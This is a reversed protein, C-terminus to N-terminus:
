LNLRNIKDLALKAERELNANKYHINYVATMYINILDSNEMNPCMPQIMPDSMMQRNAEYEVGKLLGRAELAEAAASSIPTGKTMELSIAMDSSNILYDVLKAAEEPNATDQRIVYLGTPKEYWGYSLYSDTTLFPGIALEMNMDNIADEFYGPDSAWSATGANKMMAFDRRDYESGLKSVKEDVIRTSFKLMVALDEETLAPKGDEDFTKHGTTQEMYACATMWYFKETLSIPYINDRRMVAAAAFLDDWNQPIDLGYSDYLTKNYIFTVANFGYPVAELKGNVMGCSLSGEPYTSLDIDALDSLEYFENGNRTYEYLWDYNLQMVDSQTGSYMQVDIQSKYGTFESYKPRVNIGSQETFMHLGNLTRENRDDTGWWSFSIEVPEDEEKLTREHCGCLVLMVAATLVAASRKFIHEMM